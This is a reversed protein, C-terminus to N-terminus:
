LMSLPKYQYNQKILALHFGTNAHYNISQLLMNTSVDRLKSLSSKLALDSYHCTSVLQSLHECRRVILVSLGNERFPLTPLPFFHHQNISSGTLMNFLSKAYEKCNSYIPWTDIM